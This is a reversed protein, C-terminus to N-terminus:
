MNFPKPFFSGLQYTAPRQIQDPSPGVNKGHWMDQADQLPSAVASAPIPHSMIESLISGLSGGKKRTSRGKRRGGKVLNSGMDAAPSPWAPQGKIPDFTVSMEPRMFGNSVYQTYHGYSGGNTPLGGDPGPIGAPTLYLGPRTTSDIPAGHIAAGGRKRTMRRPKKHDEILAEASAKDLPKMFVMQWEKRVDRVIKDHSDKKQIKTNLFAEMHEFARRLEPISYIGKKIHKKTKRTM